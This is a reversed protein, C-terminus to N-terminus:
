ATATATASNSPSTKLCPSPGSSCPSTPPPFCSFDTEPFNQLAIKVGLPMIVRQLRYAPDNPLRLSAATPRRFGSLITRRPTLTAIQMYLTVVPGVNQMSLSLISLLVPFSRRLDLGNPPAHGQSVVPRVIPPRTKVSRLFVGSLRVASFAAPVPTVSLRLPGRRDLRRRIASQRGQIASKPRQSPEAM